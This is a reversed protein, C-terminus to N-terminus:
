KKIKNIPKDHLVCSIYKNTKQMLYISKNIYKIENYLVSMFTNKMEEVAKM